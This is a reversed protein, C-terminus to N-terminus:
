IIKLINWWNEVYEARRNQYKLYYAHEWVDLGIIPIHNKLLPSDQNPLSYVMLKGNEDKVLWAWGSGFHNIATQSFIKKFEDISGFEKQIEEVLSENINKEPGMIEWFLSHNLHGGGNNRLITKDQDSMELNNLNKLLDELNRENLNPYKELVANLKDLYAQHHKQHHIEMTKEDIYPELANYSYSLSPLQYKM